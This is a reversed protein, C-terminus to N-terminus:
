GGVSNMNFLREEPSNLFFTHGKPKNRVAERIIRTLEGDTGGARLPTRLDVGAEHCLCTKLFGTSVLRVRNCHGCFRASLAAIFGIFGSYGEVSYVTAPGNGTRHGVKKLPGFKQGMLQFLENQPIGTLKKGQGIPMLEIFRIHFGRDLAYAALDALESDNYGKIPVVNLKVQMGLAAAKDIAALIEKLSTKVRAIDVLTKQLFADLSFTISRLGIAALEDLVPAVLTGNTTITMDEIGPIKALNRIFYVADKRCLPEGGTIKYRTIGLRAMIACLRLLEEYSLINGHPIFSTGQHPMCYICRFNCRDTLSLRAYNIQRGFADHLVPASLADGDAEASTAM